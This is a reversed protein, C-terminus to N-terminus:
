SVITDIEDEQRDDDDEVREDKMIDSLRLNKPNTIKNGSSNAFIYGVDPEKVGDVGPEYRFAYRKHQKKKSEILMLKEREPQITEGVGSVIFEKFITKDLITKHNEELYYNRMSIIQSCFAYYLDKTEDDNNTRSKTLSILGYLLVTPFSGLKIISDKIKKNTTFDHCIVDQCPIRKKNNSYIKVILDNKYYIETSYGTFQFFPYFETHTILKTDIGIVKKLEEILTLVDDRYNTSIFEYYPINLIDLKNKKNHLLGSENLFYNYAYFGNVVVTKRNILFKFVNKLLNDLHIDSGDIDISNENYPLPYYKQLLVFRRFAKLDNDFRWYSLVPDTLMRLYDIMMFHPHIAHIGNIERYPMRDYINKPVYSIDCYLLTNVFLSYTEKHMAERGVVYKFGKETLINCIEMLDIIPRPSYFDIDPIKEAKYIADKPNKQKILINLAYGGYVKRKKSKIYELIIDHVKLMEDHTPELVLQREKEVEAMILDWNKKVLEIDSTIYLSM